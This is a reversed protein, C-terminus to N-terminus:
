RAKQTKGSSAAKAGGSAVQPYLDGSGQQCGLKALSNRQEIDDVGTAMPVLDLAQALAIGARCVRLAVKHKRSALAWARDLQMGHLPARALWELSM